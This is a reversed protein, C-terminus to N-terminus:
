DISQSSADSELRCVIRSAVTASSIASVDIWEIAKDARFWTQQRKSYRRTNQKISHLTETYDVDGNIYRVMEKYGLSRMPGLEPAYGKSLLSRVEAEFGHHVMEDVREDIRSCLEQRPLTLGFQRASRRRATSRDNSQYRSIPTGTIYFVELARVIRIPDGTDLFEQLLDVLLRGRTPVLNLSQGAGAVLRKQALHDLNGDVLNQEIM